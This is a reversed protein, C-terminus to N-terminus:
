GLEDITTVIYSEDIMSEGIGYAAFIKAYTGDDIVAQIAARMMEAMEADGKEVVLGGPQVEYLGPVVVLQGDSTVEYYGSATSDDLRADVRGSLVSQIVEPIDPFIVKDIPALGAAECDASLADATFDASSGAAIGISLGCLDNQETLTAAVDPLASAVTGADMFVVFDVEELREETVTFSGWALDARGASMAPLISTFPIEVIVLELGLADASANALDIDVGTPTGDDLLFEFPAYALTNAITLEGPTMLTSALPIGEEAAAVTTESAQSTTTTDESSGCATAVLVLAMGLLLVRVSRTATM